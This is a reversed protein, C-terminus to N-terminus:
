FLKKELLQEKETEKATEGEDRQGGFTSTGTKLQQSFDTIENKRLAEFAM